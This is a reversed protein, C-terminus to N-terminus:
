PGYKKMLESLKIKNQNSLCYLCAARNRWTTAGVVSELYDFIDNYQTRFEVRGKKSQAQIKKGWAQLKSGKVNFKHDIEGLVSGKIAYLWGCGEETWHKNETEGDAQDLLDFDEDSFEYVMYDEDPSSYTLKPKVKLRKFQARADGSILVEKMKMDKDNITELNYLYRFVGM